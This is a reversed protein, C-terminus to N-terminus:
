SYSFNCVKHITMIKLPVMFSSSSKRFLLICFCVVWQIDLPDSLFLHQTKSITRLSLTRTICHDRTFTRCGSFKRWFLQPTWVSLVSCRITQAVERFSTIIVFRSSNRPLRFPKALKPTPLNCDSSNLIRQKPKIKTKPWYCQVGNQKDSICIALCQRSEVSSSRASFTGTSCDLSCWVLM